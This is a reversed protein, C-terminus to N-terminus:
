IHDFMDQVVAAMLKQLLYLRKVDDPMGHLKMVTQEVEFELGPLEQRPKKKSEETRIFDLQHPRLNTVTESIRKLEKESFQM